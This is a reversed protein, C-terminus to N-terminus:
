MIAQAGMGDSTWGIMGLRIPLSFSDILEDLIHETSTSQAITRFPVLM